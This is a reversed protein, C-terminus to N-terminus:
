ASQLTETGTGPTWKGQGLTSHGQTKRRAETKKMNVQYPESGPRGAGSDTRSDPGLTNRESLRVTINKNGTTKRM